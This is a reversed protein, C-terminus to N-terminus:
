NLVSRLVDLSKPRAIQTHHQYFNLIAEIMEHRIERNLNYTSGYPDVLMQQLLEQGSSTPALKNISSFLNEAEEVEFGLHSALKLLFQIHFNGLGTRLQDFTSISAEAFAYLNPNAAPESQLLKSFVETLFLTITSKTMDHHLSHLPVHTKFESLRQLDRSEKMYIVLDLITFPQFYGISKKSKQSRVSNVIYSGYGYEETLIRAIISTDGYKIYSLVIGKSKVVM